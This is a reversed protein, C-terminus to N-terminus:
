PGLKQLEEHIKLDEAKSPNHKLALDFEKRANPKDGKQELAMGYHYHFTSNNPDKQVLESFVRVAQDTLNKKICIWGFTDQLQLQQPSQQVARQSMSLAQDLDTGEQAKIYALNNLATAHTPQIKLIQEYIPKSEDDRGTAQFETALLLLCLTDSPAAQSCKRFNDMSDPLDGKLRQTEALKFLLDANKPEKSLLMQYISIAEDYRQSREYQNALFLKLDRREPEAQIAKETEKIADQMHGEAIMTETLGILGRRDHPNDKYLGGFVQAARKYDRDQFALTGV